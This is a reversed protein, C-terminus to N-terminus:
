EEQRRERKREGILLDYKSSKEGYIERGERYKPVLEGAGKERLEGHRKETKKGLKPMLKRVSQSFDVEIRRNDITARQMKLYAEECSQPTEYEIFAYQLSQGTKWDRVIECSKINGYRSFILELDKEVTIPNLKCVFLINEAPKADADPLDGLIELTVAQKKAKKERTIKLM